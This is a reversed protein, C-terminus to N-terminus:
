KLIYAVGARIALQGSFYLDAMAEMRFNDNMPKAWGAGLSIDQEGVLFRGRFFADDLPSWRAGLALSIEDDTWWEVGGSVSFKRSFFYNAEAGIQAKEFFGDNNSKILDTQLGILMHHVKQGFSLIPITYLILLVILRM